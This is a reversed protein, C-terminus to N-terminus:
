SGSQPRIAADIAEHAARGVPGVDKPAPGKGLSWIIQVVGSRRIRFRGCYEACEVIGEDGIRRVNWDSQARGEAM